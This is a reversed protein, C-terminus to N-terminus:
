EKNILSPMKIVHLLCKCSCLMECNILHTALCSTYGRKYWACCSAMYHYKLDILKADTEVFTYNSPTLARVTKYKLKM